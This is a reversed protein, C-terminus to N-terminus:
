EWLKQRAKKTLPMQQISKENMTMIAYIQILSSKFFNARNVISRLLYLLFFTVPLLKYKQKTSNTHTKPPYRFRCRKKRRKKKIFIHKNIAFM